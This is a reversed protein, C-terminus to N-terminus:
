AAFRGSQLFALTHRMVGPNFMMLGHSVPLSVHDAADELHTRAVPVIGDHPGDHPKGRLSKLLPEALPNISRTGAIVGLPYDVRATEPPHAYTTLLQQSAPGFINKYFPRLVKNQMLADAMESGTNPPSLMVVRGLNKPKERAILYRTVLGGMSHTVFHVAPATKYAPCAAIKDQVHAALTELGHKRAPYVINLTAYGHKQLYLSLPWMDFKSRLIGHLLIVLDKPPTTM